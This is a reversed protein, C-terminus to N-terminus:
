QNDLGYLSIESSCIQTESGFSATIAIKIYRFADSMEELEFEHGDLAEQLRDAPLNGDADRNGDGIDCAKIFTWNKCDNSGYFDFARMNDEAYYQNYSSNAAPLDSSIYYFARQWVVIRSIVAQKNMDIVINLPYTLQGGNEDRHIVFYSNDSADNNTDIVDDFFNVMRGEYKDGNASMSKVLTWTSKEIKQELLPTLMGINKEDTKNGNFDEVIFSFNYEKEELGRINFSADTGSSSLIREYSNDEDSYNLYVFVTKGTPNNWKVRVGGLIIDVDFNDQILYIYSRGPTITIHTPASYNQKNDVAYLTVSHNEEDCFGDVEIQSEYVSCVKFVKENRSNTYEAKIYLLDSDDPANFHIIAGGSTSEYSLFEIKGPAQSDNNSDKCSYSILLCTLCAVKFLRYTINKM